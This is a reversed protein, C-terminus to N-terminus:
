AVDGPIQDLRKVRDNALASRHLVKNAADRRKESRILKQKTSEDITKYIDTYRIPAGDKDMFWTQLRGDSSLHNRIKEAQKEKVM